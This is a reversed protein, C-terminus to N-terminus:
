LEILQLTAEGFGVIKGPAKEAYLDLDVFQKAQEQYIKKVIALCTIEDGPRTMAGFRMKFNTLTASTGALEMVYQGLFGMVLMGHAIVGPMGISQAFADDTHLPNFDGSAGAYKVLQVKTVAPKVLPALKQGQQLEKLQLM